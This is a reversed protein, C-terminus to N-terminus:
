SKAEHCSQWSHRVAQHHKATPSFPFANATIHSSQSSKDHFYGHPNTNNPCLKNNHNLHSIHLNALSPNEPGSSERDRRGLRKKAHMSFVTHHFSFRTSVSLFSTEFCRRQGRNPGCSYSCPPLANKRCIDLSMV